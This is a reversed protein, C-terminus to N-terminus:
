SDYDHSGLCFVREGLDVREDFLSALLRSMPSGAREVGIDLVHSIQTLARRADAIAHRDRVM